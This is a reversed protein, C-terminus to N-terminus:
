IVFSADYGQEQPQCFHLHITVEGGLKKLFSLLKGESFRNYEGNKLHAVESQAIGLLKGIERQRLGQNALITRVQSGLKARALLEDAEELDLDAFVNGYSEHAEVPESDLTETAPVFDLCQTASRM